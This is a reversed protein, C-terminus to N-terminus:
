YLIIFLYFFIIKFRFRKRNKAVQALKLWTLIWLGSPSNRQKLFWPHPCARSWSRCGLVWSCVLASHLFSSSYYYSLDQACLMGEDQWCYINKKRRRSEVSVRWNIIHSLKREVVGLFSDIGVADSELMERERERECYGSRVFVFLINCRSPVLHGQIGRDTFRFPLSNLVPCVCM